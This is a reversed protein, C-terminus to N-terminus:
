LLREPHRLSPRTAPRTRATISGMFAFARIHLVPANLPIASSDIHAETSGCIPIGSIDVDVGPPVIIEVSGMCTLANLTIEAQPIEAARLDLTVQGMLAIATSNDDLRWRGRRTVQGLIAISTRVMHQAISRTSSSLTPSASPPSLSAPSSFSQASDQPLDATLESLEGRTQAAYAQRIRDSLDELTLRGEVFHSRLLTVTAERDADSARLIPQQSM